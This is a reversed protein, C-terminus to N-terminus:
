WTPRPSGAAKPLCAPYRKYLEEPSPFAALSQQEQTTFDFEEIGHGNTSYAFLLGFRQAYKKAPQLGVSAGLVEEKAEVVALPL